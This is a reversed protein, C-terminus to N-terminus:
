ARRRLAGGGGRGHGRPDRPVRQALREPREPPSAGQAGGRDARPARELGDARRDGNPPARRRALANRRARTGRRARPGRPSARGDERRDARIGDADEPGRPGGQPGPRLDPGRTTRPDGRVEPPNRRAKRVHRRTWNPITESDPVRTWPSAGAGSAGG